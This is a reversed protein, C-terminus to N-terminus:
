AGRLPFRSCRGQSGSKTQESGDVAVAVHGCWELWYDTVLFIWSGVLSVEPNERLAILIYWIKQMESTPLFGPFGRNEQNSVGVGLERAAAVGTM